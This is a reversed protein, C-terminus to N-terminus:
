RGCCVIEDRGLAQHAAADDIRAAFAALAFCSVIVGITSASLGISHGYIPMYFQFLDNGTVVIGGAILIRWHPANGLLSARQGATKRSEASSAHPVCVVRSFFPSRAYRYWRCARSIFSPARYGFHDISFGAALPGLM